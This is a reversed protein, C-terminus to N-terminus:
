ENAFIGFDGAVLWSGSAFSRLVRIINSSSTFTLPVTNSFVEAFARGTALNAELLRVIPDLELNRGRAAFRAAGDGDVANRFEGFRIFPSLIGQLFLDPIFQISDQEVLGGGVNKIAFRIIQARNNSIDANLAYVSGGGTKAWDLPEGTPSCPLLQVVPGVSEPLGVSTWGVDAVSTATRIDGVNGVRVLGFSTGILAFKGSIIVDILAGNLGPGPIGSLDAVTVVTSFNLSNLDIRDLKTNTLVYLFDGEGDGQIILKRVFTYNDVMKFSMDDKLGAFNPGLGTLWGSGDGRSLVAVGGVGGVFLIGNGVEQGTLFEGVAASNIPGIADLLSV